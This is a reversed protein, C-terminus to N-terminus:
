RGACFVEGRLGASARAFFSTILPDDLQITGAVYYRVLHNGLSRDSDSVEAENVKLANIAREYRFRMAPLMSAIPPSFRLYSNWAFRDLQRLKGEDPFLAPLQQEWWIQDLWALTAFQMGYMERVAVSNDLKPDLHAALLGFAEPLDKEGVNQDRESLKFWRAYRIVAELGVPRTSNLALMGSGPKEGYKAEDNETPSPNEAILSLAPWFEMHRSRDLKDPHLFLETLFRASSMHAWSWGPDEDWEFHEDGAKKTNSRRM